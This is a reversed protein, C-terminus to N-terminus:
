CPSFTTCSSVSHHEVAAELVEEGKLKGKLSTSTDLSPACLTYGLARNQWWQPYSHLTTVGGM